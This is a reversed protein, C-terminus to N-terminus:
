RFHTVVVEEPACAPPVPAEHAPPHGSPKTRMGADGRIQM